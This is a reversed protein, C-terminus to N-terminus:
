ARDFWSIARSIRLLFDERRVFAQKESTSKFDRHPYREIFDRHLKNWKEKLIKSKKSECETEVPLSHVGM